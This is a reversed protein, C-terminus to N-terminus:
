RAAAAGGDLPIVAGSVYASAPSCLFLAPGAIDAAGGVRGLPVSQEIRRRSEPDTLAFEMMRTDFPGPALANVTVNDAGLKAALMRTLHHM